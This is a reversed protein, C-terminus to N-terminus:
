GGRKWPMLGRELLTLVMEAAFCAILERLVM